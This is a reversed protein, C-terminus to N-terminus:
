GQGEDRARLLERAIVLDLPRTVKINAPDGEIVVVPRGLAEVMSADDTADVTVTAHAERLLDGAFGQPTQVARVSARDVTELIADSEGDVRKLTDVVPVGPIAAGATRAADLVAEILAPSALPRAGDHVLYWDAEAVAIGAAVSDQRRSGGEVCRLELGPRSPVLESLAAHREAPGVIVLTDIAEVAAFARLARGIVPVGGLDSWLKNESGMRESRGAALVIAAVYSSM